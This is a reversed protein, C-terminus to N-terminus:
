SMNQAGLHCQDDNVFVPGHVTLVEDRSKLQFRHCSLIQLKGKLILINIDGSCKNIKCCTSNQKM